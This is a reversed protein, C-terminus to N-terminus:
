QALTFQILAVQGSPFDVQGLCSSLVKQARGNVNLDHKKLSMNCSLHLHHYDLLNSIYVSVM